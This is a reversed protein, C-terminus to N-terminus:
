IVLKLSVECKTKLGTFGFRPALISPMVIETHSVLYPRKFIDLRIKIDWNCM